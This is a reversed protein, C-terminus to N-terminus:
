FSFTIHPLQHMSLLKKIAARYYAICQVIAVAALANEKGGKRGFSDRSVLVRSYAEERTGALGVNAIEKGVTGRAEIGCCVIWLLMEGFKVREVGGHSQQQITPCQPNLTRVM